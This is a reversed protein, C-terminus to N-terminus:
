GEDNLNMTIGLIMTKDDSEEKLSSTGVELFKKWKANMEEETVNEQRMSKLSTILPNFFKPFPKNPDEWMNKETDMRSCEFSHNECGDSMLTFAKINDRIVSSEPVFVKSMVLQDDKLWVSSTLFVTQNSEEGKHPIITAQWEGQENCYGARGDGIHIILLGTPSYVNVIVTCALSLFELNENTAKKELEERSKVLVEKAKKEWESDDPLQNTANWGEKIILEKFLKAVHKATFESGIDSNKASGAGDCIVAVGWDKEVPEHAFSDQCPTNNSVHAKGTASEGVIIWNSQVPIAQERKETTEDQTNRKQAEADQSHKEEKNQFLYLIKLLCNM